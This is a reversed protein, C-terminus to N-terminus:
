HQMCRVWFGTNHWFVAIRRNEFRPYQKAYPWLIMSAIGTQRHMGHKRIDALLSAVTLQKKKKKKKAQCRKQKGGGERGVPSLALTKGSIDILTPWSHKIMPVTNLFITKFGLMRFSILSSTHVAPAWEVKYRATTYSAIGRGRGEMHPLVSPGPWWVRM